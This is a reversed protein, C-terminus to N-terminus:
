WLHNNFPSEGHLYLRELELEEGMTTPEPLAGGRKISIYRNFM